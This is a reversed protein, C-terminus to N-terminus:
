CKKPVIVEDYMQTIQIICYLCVLSPVMQIFKTDNKLIRWLPLRYYNGRAISPFYFGSFTNYLGMFVM